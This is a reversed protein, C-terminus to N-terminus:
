RWACSCLSVWACVHVIHLGCPSMLRTGGDGGQNQFCPVRVRFKTQQSPYQCQAWFTEVKGPSSKIPVRVWEWGKGGPRPVAVRHM